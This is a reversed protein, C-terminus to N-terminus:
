KLLKIYEIFRDKVTKYNGSDVGEEKIMGRIWAIRDNFPPHTKDIIATEKGNIKNIREFYRSLGDPAYGSFACFLVADRDAQIEDERKLGTKLLVAIAKDVSQSFAMRASESSGGILVALGSVPSAEQGKINLEKVVHKEVVHGIEHALVGALESEDQMRALAGRTVFIYGGPTSYGNIEDTNLIAFHFELEPRGSNMALVNGVLNVYKMLESNDYLGFRAIIRAAVERGFRVEEVIDSKIIENTASARQRFTPNSETASLSRPLTLDSVTLFAALFIIWKKM